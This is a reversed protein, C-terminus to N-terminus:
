TGGEGLDPIPRAVPARGWIARWRLSTEAEAQGLKRLAACERRFCETEDGTQRRRQRLQRRRRMLVRLARVFQAARRVIGGRPRLRGHIWDIYVASRGGQRRRRRFADKTLREAPIVHRVVARPEYLVTGGAAVIRLILETWWSL